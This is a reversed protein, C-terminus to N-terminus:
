LKNLFYAAIGLIILFIVGILTTVDDSLVIVGDRRTYITSGSRTLEKLNAARATGFSILPILIRGIGYCIVELFFQIIAEAIFGM